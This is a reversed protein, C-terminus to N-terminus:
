FTFNVTFSNSDKGGLWASFDNYNGYYAKIDCVLFDIEYSLYIKAEKATMNTVSNVINQVDSPLTQGNTTVTVKNSKKM